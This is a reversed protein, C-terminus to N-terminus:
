INGTDQKVVLNLVTGDHCKQWKADVTIDKRQLEPRAGSRYEPDSYFDM